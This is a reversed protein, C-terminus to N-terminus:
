RVPRKIWGWLLATVNTQAQLTVASFFKLMLRFNLDETLYVPISLPAIFNTGAAGLTVSHATAAATIDVSGDLGWGSPFTYVPGQRIIKNHGVTFEVYGNDHVLVTDVFQAGAAVVIGIRWVIMEWGAPLKSSVQMNTADLSKNALDRFYIYETGATIAAGVAVRDYIADELWEVLNIEQGTPLVYTGQAM